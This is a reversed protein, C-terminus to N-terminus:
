EFVNERLQQHTYASLQKHTYASLVRHTNYLLTTTLVIHVPLLDDLLKCMASYNNKSGLNLKCTATQNAYDITLVYNGAGCLNDLRQRLKKETYPVTDYWLSMVIFRREDLTYTSQPTIGLIKERRAIGSEYSTSILIDAEVEDYAASLKEMQIDKAKLYESIDKINTVHEPLEVNVLQM